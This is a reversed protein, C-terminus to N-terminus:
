DKALPEKGEPSNLMRPYGSSDMSVESINLKLTKVKKLASEDETQFEIEESLAVTGELASSTEGKALGERLEVKAIMEKLKIMEIGKLKIAARKHVGEDRCVQRFHYMLTTLRECRLGVWVQGTWKTKSLSPDNILLQSLAARLPQPHIEACRQVKVLADILDLNSVIGKPDVANSKNIAEYAGLDCVEASNDKLAKLILGADCLPKAAHRAGGRSGPMAM